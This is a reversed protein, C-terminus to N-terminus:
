GFAVIRVTKKAPSILFVKRQCRDVLGVKGDPWEVKVYYPELAMGRIIVAKDPLTTKWTLTKCKRDHGSSYLRAFIARDLPDSFQHIIIFLTAIILTAAALKSTTNKMM